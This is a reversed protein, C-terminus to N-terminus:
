RGPEQQPGDLALAHEAMPRKSSNCLKEVPQLALSRTLHTSNKLLAWKKLNLNTFSASGILKAPHTVPAHRLANQRLM